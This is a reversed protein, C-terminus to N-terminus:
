MHKVCKLLTFYLIDTSKLTNIFMEGPYQNEAENRPLTVDKGSEDKRSNTTLLSQSNFSILAPIQLFRINPISFILDRYFFYLQVVSCVDGNLDIASRYPLIGM